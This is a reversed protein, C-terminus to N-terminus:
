ADYCMNTLMWFSIRFCKGNVLYLVFMLFMLFVFEVGELHLFFFVNSFCLFFEVNKQEM